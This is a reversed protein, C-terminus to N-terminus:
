YKLSKMDDPLVLRIKYDYLVLFCMGMFAKNIFNFYLCKNHLVHMNTLNIYHKKTIIVSICIPNLTAM